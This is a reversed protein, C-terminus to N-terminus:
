PWSEYWDGPGFSDFPWVIAQDCSGRHRWTNRKYEHYRYCMEDLNEAFLRIESTEGTWWGVKGSNHALLTDGTQSSFLLLAGEWAAYGQLSEAMWPEDLFRWDDRWGAFVGAGPFFDERMGAFAVIFRSLLPDDFGRQHLHREVVDAEVPEPILFFTSAVHKTEPRQCMLWARDGHVVISTARYECFFRTLEGLAGDPEPLWRSRLLTQADSPALRAVSRLWPHLNALDSEPMGRVPLRYEISPPYGAEEWEPLQHVRVSAQSM